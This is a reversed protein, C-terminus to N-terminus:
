LKKAEAKDSSGAEKRIQRTLTSILGPCRELLKLFEARSPWVVCANVLDAGPGSANDESVHDVFRDWVSRLPLRFVIDGVDASHCFIEGDYQKETRLKERLEEIEEPTIRRPEEM